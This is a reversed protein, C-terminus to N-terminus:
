DDLDDTKAYNINRRLRLPEADRGFLNSQNDDAFSTQEAGALQEASIEEESKEAAEESRSDAMILEESDFLRFEEEEPQTAEAEKEPAELQFAKEIEFSTERIEEPEAPQIEGAATEEAPEEQVAEEESTIEANQKIFSEAEESVPTPSACRCLLEDFRAVFGRAESMYLKRVEKIRELEECLEKKESYAGSRIEEARKEAEAIIKEAEVRAAATKEEASKQAMLLTDHMVSRVHEFEALKERSKECERELRSIKEAYQRLADVVDDLFRDVENTDYGRIAKKFGAHLVDQSTLLNDM